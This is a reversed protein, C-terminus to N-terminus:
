HRQGGRGCANRHFQLGPRHGRGTAPIANPNNVNRSNVGCFYLAFAYPLVIREAWTIREQKLFVSAAHLKEARAYNALSNLFSPRYSTDADVFLIWRSDSALAGALCANPKGMLKAALPPAPIVVAGAARAIEATRDQSADDVVVVPAQGFSSVM